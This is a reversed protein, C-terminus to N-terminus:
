WYIFDFQLPTIGDKAGLERIVGQLSDYDEITLNNWNANHERNAYAKVLIHEPLEKNYM